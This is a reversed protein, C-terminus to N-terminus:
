VMSLFVKDIFGLPVFSPHFSFLFLVTIDKDIQEGEHQCIWIKELLDPHFDKFQCIEIDCIFKELTAISLTKTFLDILNDNSKVRRIVIEGSKLPILTFLSSHYISLNMVRLTDKKLRHLAHLM